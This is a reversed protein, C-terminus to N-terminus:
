EGAIPRGCPNGESDFDIYFGGGFHLKGPDDDVYVHIIKKRVSIKLVSNGPSKWDKMLSVVSDLISARVKCATGPISIIRASYRGSKANIKGASKASIECYTGQSDAGNVNKKHCKSEVVVRFYGYLNGEKNFEMKMNSSLYFETESSHSRILITDPKFGISIESKGFGPDFEKLESLVSDLITAKIKYTSEGEQVAFYHKDHPVPIRSLEGHLKLANIVCVSDKESNQICPLTQDGAFKQAIEGKSDSHSILLVLGVFVAFQVPIKPTM